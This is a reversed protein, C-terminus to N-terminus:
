CLHQYVSSRGPKRAEKRKRHTRTASGRVRGAARAPQPSKSKAPAVGCAAPRGTSATRGTTGCRAAGNFVVVEEGSPVVYDEFTHEASVEGFESDLSHFMLGARDVSVDGEDGAVDGRKRLGCRRYLIPTEAASAAEWGGDMGDEPCGVCCCGIGNLEHCGEGPTGYRNGSGAHLLAPLRALDAGVGFREGGLRPRCLDTFAGHGSVPGITPDGSRAAM